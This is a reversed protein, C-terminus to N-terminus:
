KRMSRRSSRLNTNWIDILIMKFAERGVIGLDRRHQYGIEGLASVVDEFVTYDQIVVDLDIIGQLVHERVGAATSQRVSRNGASM